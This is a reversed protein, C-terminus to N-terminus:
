DIVCNILLVSLCIGLCGKKPMKQNHFNTNIKREYFKIKTKLYKGNYIHENDFIKEIFKSVKDQIENYKELLENDKILFHLHKIKDFHRRYASMKPLMICLLM